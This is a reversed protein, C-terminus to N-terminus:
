LFTLDIRHDNYIRIEKIFSRWFYRKDEFNFVDYLSEFDQNLLNRITSLDKIVPITDRLESLEKEYKARDIKFENLTILENIYLEKLKVIKREISNRKAANNVVPATSIDYETIYQELAPRLMALLRKELTTEYFQKGNRCNRQQSYGQCRYSPYRYHTPNNPDEPEHKHRRQRVSCASMKYGCEGCFVLGSFIYDFKKNSRINKKVLEGIERFLDVPIIAPCYNKNERYIGIYKENTLIRRIQTYSRNIGLDNIAYRMTARLNPNRRYYKFLELVKPATDPDIVVHKDIVKYGLPQVGSIAEGNKVKNDFVAIIRESDTQAEMEAWSM